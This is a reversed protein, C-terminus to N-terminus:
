FVTERAKAAMAESASLPITLTDLMYRRQVGAVVHAIVDFAEHAPNVIRTWETALLRGKLKALTNSAAQDVQAQTTFYPSSVFYPVQGMPGYRYTASAPNDDWAEGRLPVDVGTGEATAIVGNYCNAMSATHKEDLVVDLDGDHYTMVPNALELDPVRYVQAAGDGDFALELGAATAITCADKWPDSSAGADFVAQSALTVGANGSWGIPCAPWRDLLMARLAVYVDTGAAISYPQTWRARAIRRSRDAAQLSIERDNVQGVDADIVFVGLPVMEPTGGALALGRKVVIEAGYRTLWDWVSAGPAVSLTLARQAGTGKGDIAVSGTLIDLDGLVDAGRVVTASFAVSQSGSSVAARFAASVPYM